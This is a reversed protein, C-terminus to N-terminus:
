SLICYNLHQLVTLPVSANRLWSRAVGLGGEGRGDESSVNCMPNRFLPFSNTGTKVKLSHMTAKSQNLCLNQM